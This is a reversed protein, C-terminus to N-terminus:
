KANSIRKICKAPVGAWVEDAPITKTVVSGAGIISNAGIEIGPLICVGMGIWVNDKIIVKEFLMEKRKIPNLPHTTSSIVCNASILVNNGIIVGGSSFITTNEMISSNNGIEFQSSGEITVTPKICINSGYNKVRKKLNYQIAKQM